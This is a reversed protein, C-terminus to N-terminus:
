KLFDLIHRNVIDPQEHNVWHTAEGVFVLNGDTLFDLSAKATETSLFQDGLGWIIKTKVSIKDKPIDAYWIARYWNLMAQLSGKQAWAETYREVDTASFTGPKSSTELATRMHKYGDTAFLSEPVKPIQFFLMYSSKLWQPPYRRMTKEMAGPHPINIAILKDVYEPKTATLYWAVAGGWDHGAIVAKSRGFAEILGTIDDRLKDITYNKIGEPKESLNYGRQDPVVVRYGAKVLPEIQNKWGYWFEPFGHLLVALPGNEPGAVATHLTIGNTEVFQFDIDVTM